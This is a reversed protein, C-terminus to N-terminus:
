ATLGPYDIKLGCLPKLKLQFKFERKVHLSVYESWGDKNPCKPLGNNLKVYRHNIDGKTEESARHVM